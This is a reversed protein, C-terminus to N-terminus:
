WDAFSIGIGLTTQRHNYDIMTEGYGDFLQVQGRLHGKIPFVYNLQISGGEWSSFPHTIITYFQHRNLYLGCKTRWRWYM